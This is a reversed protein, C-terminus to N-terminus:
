GTQNRSQRSLYMYGLSNQARGNGQDVSKRLLEVAQRDDQPLGGRGDALANGLYVQGLANGQDASKRFLEVAQRDDQPLGGRGSLYMIGLNVQASADGHEALDRWLRLATAYDGKAYAAQADELPGATLQLPAVVAVLVAALLYAGRLFRM